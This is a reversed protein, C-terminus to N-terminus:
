LSDSALLRFSLLAAILVTLSDAFVSFVAVSCNFFTESVGSSFTLLYWSLGHLTFSSVWRIRTNDSFPPSFRGERVFYKVPSISLPLLVTVSTVEIRKELPGDNLWEGDYVVVGNRDLQICGLWVAEWGICRGESSRMRWNLVMRSWKSLWSCWRTVYRAVMLVGLMIDRRLDSIVWNWSAVRVLCCITRNSTRDKLLLEIVWKTFWVERTYFLCAWYVAVWCWEWNKRM